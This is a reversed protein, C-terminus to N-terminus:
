ENNILDYSKKTVGDQKKLITIEVRRNQDRGASTANTAVPVSFWLGETTIRDKDIGHKILFTAVANARRKSLIINYQKSGYNDTHGEVKIPRDPYMKLIRVAENLMKTSKDKLNYKDFDFLVKASFAMKLGLETEQVRIEPTILRVPCIESKASNGSTDFATLQAYYTEDPLYRDYFDKGNWDLTEPPDGRGNWTMVTVSSKDVMRIEWSAIGEDDYAKPYLITKQGQSPMFVDPALSLIAIPPSMDKQIREETGFRFVDDFILKVFVRVEDFSGLENRSSSVGDIKQVIELNDKRGGVYEAGITLCNPFERTVGALYLEDYTAGFNKHWDEPGWADRYYGGQFTYQKYKVKLNTKFYGTIKKLFVEAKAYPTSMTAVDEGVEFDYLVEVKNFFMRTFFYWSGLYGDTPLAGTVPVGSFAEWVIDGNEDRYIQRDTGGLHRTLKLKTAFTFLSDEQPNLNWEEIVNPEMLYFWTDPTPDYTFTLAFEDTERNDFGTPANRWWVWFPSTQGRTQILDPGYDSGVYPMSRLLPKRHMVSLAGTFDKNLAHQVEADLQQKNGAVLGQYSYKTTILDAGLIKPISLKAAGGFADAMGTKGEKILYKTGATGTGEPVEKDVYQYTKDLRFPRFMGGVQLTTGAVKFDTSIEATRMREDPDGYPIIHDAYMLNVNSGFINRYKMYFGQNYDVVAEQGYIFQFDGASGKMNLQWWEPVARGTVRVDNYPDMHAQYINFMDGEYRWDYHAQNRYYGLSAWDNHIVAKASDWFFHPFIIGEDFMRHFNNVTKWYRSAYDGMFDLGFQAYFWDTPKMAVGVFLSQGWHDKWDQNNLSKDKTDRRFYYNMGNPVTYWADLRRNFIGELMLETHLAIDSVALKEADPENPSHRFDSRVEAFVDVVSIMFFVLLIISFLSRKISMNCSNYKKLFIIDLM